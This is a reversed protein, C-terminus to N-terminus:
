GSSDAGRELRAAVADALATLKSATARVSRNWWARAGLGAPVLALAAAVAGMTPSTSAATAFGTFAAAALTGFALVFQRGDARADVHVVTGDADPVVSIAVSSFGNDYRWESGGATDQIMGTEGLQQRALAFAAMAAAPRVQRGVRRVLQQGAPAVLQGGDHLVPSTEGLARAASAVHEPAIEAGAAIQKLEQLSYRPGDDTSLRAAEGLIARAEEDSYQKKEMVRGRQEEPLVLV